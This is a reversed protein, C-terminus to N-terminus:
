APRGAAPSISWSSASSTSRSTRRRGSRRVCSSSGSRARHVDADQPASQGVVGVVLRDFIQAARGIVDLHGNTVPDYTGPYIATIMPHLPDTAGLRVRPLNACRAATGGAARRAVVVRLRAAGDEALSGPWTRRSGHRAGQLRLAPRLARPRLAGREGALASFVDRCLVRRTCASGTSIRTSRGPVRRPRVRRVRVLRRRALAGRARARGLGRLPRARTADDVPGILNFANERVRDSTPRTKEGKPADIRRGRHEGAIIRVIGGAGGGRRAPRGPGAVPRGRRSARRGARTRREILDRDARLRTFRLESWGSQRTGLLQGEGRLELDREALEFGDTSDVLAQLRAQAVDTLEEKPRSILLCYSQEGSRGVRGRLQHLQALGFRDAEQVIMITANPVDVGVEIVTTAVLVDLEREKFQRMVERREAPRLRGHLLGIRYGALEGRRLRDAEEEAARALRAESQEILPCVVYAQRGADLHVRLREYAESSREAGVWATVIPKRNAPPKAIESVALDGYITLALTRPIPTATMHLVHPSRGEVLAQRQEVGFRHQEDVVAVALDAFEVQRQILAHTGVAIQAAGAAIEAACRPRAAGLRDAAGCRVGLAACLPELTLFHQEALTETPAMLAGQRGAEVARLLAYLAVVTKGSGVDGQLLRQM